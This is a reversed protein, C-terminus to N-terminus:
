LLKWKILVKKLEKEKNLKETKLNEIKIEYDNIIEEIISLEEKIPKIEIINNKKHNLHSRSKLCEKCLHRNCDFCYSVYKNNKNLSHEKCRDENNKQKYKEMKLIYEKISIIKKEHNNDKNLCKFEIINNDENISLIEILSTCETCSYYIDSIEISPQPTLTAPPADNPNYDEKQNIILKSM